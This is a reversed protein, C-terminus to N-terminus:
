ERSIGNITANGPNVGANILSTESNSKRTNADNM